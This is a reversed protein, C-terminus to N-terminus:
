PAVPLGDTVVWAGFRTIDEGLAAGDAATVVDCKAFAAATVPELTGKSELMKSGTGTEALRVRTPRKTGAKPADADTQWGRLNRAFQRRAEEYRISKRRGTAALHALWQEIGADTIDLAFGTYCPIMNPHRGAPLTVPHNRYPQGALRHEVWGPPVAVAPDPATTDFAVNFGVLRAEFDPLFRTLYEPGVTGDRKSLPGQSGQVFKRTQPTVLGVGDCVWHGLAAKGGRLNILWVDSVNVPRAGQIELWRGGSLLVVAGNDKDEQTGGAERWSNSWPVLLPRANAEMDLSWQKLNRLWPFLFWGSAKAPQWEPITGYRGPEDWLAGGGPAAQPSRWMVRSTTAITPDYGPFEPWSGEETMIGISHSPPLRRPPWNDADGLLDLALAPTQDITM